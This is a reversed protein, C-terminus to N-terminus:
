SNEVQRIEILRWKPTSFEEADKIAFDTAEDENDAQVRIISYDFLEVMVDFVPM